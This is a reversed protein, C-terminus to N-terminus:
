IAQPLQLLSYYVHKNLLHKLSARAEITETPHNTHVKKNPENITYSNSCAMQPLSGPTGLLVPHTEPRYARGFLGM